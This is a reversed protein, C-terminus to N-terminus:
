MAPGRRADIEIVPDGDDPAIERDLDSSLNQRITSSSLGAALDQAREGIEEVIDGVGGNGVDEPFVANVRRRISFTPSSPACEHFDM